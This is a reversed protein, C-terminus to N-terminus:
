IYKKNKKIGKTDKIKNKKNNLEQYKQRQYDDDKNKSSHVMEAQWYVITLITFIYAQISGDFIDFYIHVWPTIFVALLDVPGILPVHSWIFGLFEYLLGIIISGGISNGFLRFTMSILPIFQSILELPNYLYKKFFSFKQYKLGFYYIGVFAVIGMCFVVTYSGVQSEFGVIGLINGIIIYLLLYLCYVTFKKYKKGLIEVIMNEIAKILLEALLVLGRPEYLQNKDKIKCNYSIAGVMIILSTLFITLIQPVFLWPNWNSLGSTSAYFSNIVSHYIM